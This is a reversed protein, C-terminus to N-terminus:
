GEIPVSAEPQTSNPPFGVWHEVVAIILIGIVAIALSLFPNAGTVAAIAIGTVLILIIRPLLLLKSARWVAVAMGGIFLILGAGLALRAELSLAEDPHAM